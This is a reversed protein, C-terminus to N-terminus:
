MEAIMAQNKPEMEAPVMRGEAEHRDQYSGGGPRASQSFQGVQRYPAQGFGTNNLPHGQRRRARTEWLAWGISLLAVAGLVALGAVAGSPIANSHATCLGDSSASPAVTVTM